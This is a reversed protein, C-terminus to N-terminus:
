NLVRRKRSKEDQWLLEEPVDSGTEDQEWAVAQMRHHKVKVQVVRGAFARAGTNFAAALLELTDKISADQLLHAEFTRVLAPPPLEVAEGAEAALERMVEANNLALRLLRATAGTPQVEDREWKSFARRGCGFIRAAQEQSMRYKERLLAVDSPSIYDRLSREYAEIIRRNEAMQGPIYGQAGCRDCKAYHLGEVRHERRKHHFAHMGDAHPVWTGGDCAPCPEAQFQITM